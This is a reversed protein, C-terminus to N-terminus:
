RIWDITSGCGSRRMPNTKSFRVGRTSELKSPWGGDRAQTRKAIKGSGKSPDFTIWICTRNELRLGLPANPENEFIAGLTSEINTCRGQGKPNTEDHQEYGM